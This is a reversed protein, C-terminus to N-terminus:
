RRRKLAAIQQPSVSDLLEDYDYDTDKMDRDWMDYARKDFAEQLETKHAMEDEKACARAAKCSAAMVTRIHRQLLPTIALGVCAERVAAHNLPADSLPMSLAVPRDMAAYHALLKSRHEDRWWAALVPALWAAADRRAAVRMLVHRAVDSAPTTAALLAADRVQTASYEDRTAQLAGLYPWIAAMAEAWGDATTTAHVPQATGVAGAVVEETADLCTDSHANLRQAALMGSCDYDLRGELTFRSAEARWLLASDHVALLPLLWAEHTSCHLFLISERIWAAPIARGRLHADADADMTEDNPPLLFQLACRVLALQAGTMTYRMRAPPAEDGATTPEERGTTGREESGAADCEKSLPLDISAPITYRGDCARLTHVMAAEIGLACSSRRLTLTACGVAAALSRQLNTARLPPLRCRFVLQLSADSTRWGLAAVAATHRLWAKTNAVAAVLKDAPVTALATYCDYDAATCTAWDVTGVARAAWPEEEASHRAVLLHHAAARQRVTRVAAALAHADLSTECVSMTGLAADWATASALPAVDVRGGLARALSTCVVPATPSGHLQLLLWGDASRAWQEVAWSGHRASLWASLARMDGDHAVVSFMTHTGRVTRPTPLDPPPATATRLLPVRVMSLEADDLVVVGEAYAGVWAFRKELKVGAPLVLGAIEVNDLVSTSHLPSQGLLRWPPTASSYLAEVLEKETADVALAKLQRRVCTQVFVKLLQTDHFFVENYGRRAELILCATACTSAGSEGGARQICVSTLRAGVAEFAAAFAALMATLVLHVTGTSNDWKFIAHARCPSDAELVECAHINTAVVRKAQTATTCRAFLMAGPHSPCPARDRSLLVSTASERPRVGELTDWWDVGHDRLVLASRPRKRKVPAAATPAELLEPVLTAAISIHRVGVNTDPALAVGVTESTMSAATADTLTFTTFTTSPSLSTAM